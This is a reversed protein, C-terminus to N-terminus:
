FCLTWVPKYPNERFMIVLKQYINVNGIKTNWRYKFEKLQLLFKDKWTGSHKNLRRKLTVGLLNLEM